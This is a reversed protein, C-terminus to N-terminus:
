THDYTLTEGKTGVPGPLGVPGCIQVNVFTLGRYGICPVGRRMFFLPYWTQYIWRLRRFKGKSIRAM